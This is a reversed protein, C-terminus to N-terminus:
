AYRTPIVPDGRGLRFAEEPLEAIAAARHERALQTGAPGQFREVAVGDVM